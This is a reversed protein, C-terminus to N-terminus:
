KFIRHDNLLSSAFSCSWLTNGGKEQLCVSALVEKVWKSLTDGGKSVKPVSTWERQKIQTSISPMTATIEIAQAM